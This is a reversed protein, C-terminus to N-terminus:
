KWSPKYAAATLSQRATVGGSDTYTGSVLEVEDEWCEGNLWSAPHKTYKPNKAHRDAAYRRAGELLEAVDVKKLATVWARRAAGKAVRRPYIAWFENFEPTDEIKM